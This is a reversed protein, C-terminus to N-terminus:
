KVRGGFGRALMAVRLLTRDAPGLRVVRNAQSESFVLGIEPLWLPDDASRLGRVVVEPVTGGEIVDAIDPAPQLASTNPATRASAGAWATMSGALAAAVIPVVFRYRSM